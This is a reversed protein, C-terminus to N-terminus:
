MKQSIGYAQLKKILRKNPVKDFTKMFGMYVADITGGNDLIETWKDLVTLLQLSTSRGGIFGFQKSIFLNNRNM